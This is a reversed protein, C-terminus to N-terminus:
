AQMQDLRKSSKSSGFVKVKIFGNAVYKTLFLNLIQSLVSNGSTVICKVKVKLNKRKNKLIDCFFMQSLKYFKPNTLSIAEFIYGKYLFSSM